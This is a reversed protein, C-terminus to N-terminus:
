NSSAMVNPIPRFKACMGPTGNEAAPLVGDLLAMAGSQMGEIIHLYTDITFAVSSYKLAESIAGPKEHCVHPFM